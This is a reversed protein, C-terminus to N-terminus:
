REVKNILFPKDFLLVVEKVNLVGTNRLYTFRIRKPNISSELPVTGVYDREPASPEGSENKTKEALVPRTDLQPKTSIATELYITENRGTVDDLLEISCVREGAEFENDHSLYSITGISVPEDSFTRPVPISVESNPGLRFAAKLRVVNEGFLVSISEDKVSSNWSIAPVTVPGTYLFAYDEWKDGEWFQAITIIGDGVYRMIPMNLTYRQKYIQGFEWEKIGMDYVDSYAPSPGIGPARIMVCLKAEQVRDSIPRWYLTLELPIGIKLQPVSKGLVVGDQSLDFGLLEAAPLRGVHSFISPRGYLQRTPTLDGFAATEKESSFPMEAAVAIGLHTLVSFLCLVM